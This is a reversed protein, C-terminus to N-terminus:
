RGPRDLAIWSHLLRLMWGSLTPALTMAVAGVLAALAAGSRWAQQAADRRMWLRLTLLVLLLPVVTIIALTALQASWLHRAYGSFRGLGLYIYFALVSAGWAGFFLWPIWRTRNRARAWAATVSLVTAAAVFIPWGQTHVAIWDRMLM